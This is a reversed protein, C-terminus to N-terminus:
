NFNKRCTVDNSPNFIITKDLFLTSQSINVSDTIDHDSFSSFDIFLIFILDSTGFISKNKGHFVSPFCMCDFRLVM